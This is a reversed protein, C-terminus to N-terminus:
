TGPVTVVVNEQAYKAIRKHNDLVVLDFFFIDNYELVVVVCENKSNKVVTYELKVDNQCRQWTQKLLRCQLM